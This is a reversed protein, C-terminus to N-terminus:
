SDSSKLIRWEKPYYNNVRNSLLKVWGLNIGEYKVLAWGKERTETKVEEKRLYRVADEQQLVVAPLGNNVVESLALDHAPIFEKNLLKGVLTGAKRTYLSAHISLLEQDLAARFAFINQEHSYLDYESADNLWPQVLAKDPVSLKVLKKKSHETSTEGGDKKRFCAIFFGEGSLKDPFFRYAFAKHKSSITEVIGWESRIKVSLSTANFNDCIWDCIDEDEQVSYSCTSYIVLGNQKLAPWVDALIRQQRRSCMDVAAPSWENVADPDRRFLGSGSCPADIVIIDFYNKLRSFDRPDNNTVINNAAGWKIINESLVNVRTKIVENSVLLSDKNLLSQILTSKGGPAACLDLVKIGRTMDGLQILCQELFMSSAEQVYYAGGHILPDFTFFPRSSLYYGYSSWPVKEMAGFSLHAPKLPNIRISTIKEGDSHIEKFSTKNFGKVGELSELLKEPLFSM